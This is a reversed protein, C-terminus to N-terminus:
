FTGRLQLGGVGPGTIPALAVSTTVRRPAVLWWVVGSALLVGGAVYGIVSITGDLHSADHLDVCSTSGVVSCNQNNFDSNKSSSVLGFGVGLGLGVLGVGGLIIAGTPPPFAKAHEETKPPEVTNGTSKLSVNQQEGARADVDAAATKGESRAELHHHGPAVDIPDPSRFEVQQGDVFVAAGAPADVNLRGVKTELEGIWQDIMPLAKPDLLPDRRCKRFDRAADTERGLLQKERAINYLVNASPYIRYAEEFKALAGAEDAQAHLKAGADILVAAQERRPDDARSTTPAAIAALFILTTLSRRM